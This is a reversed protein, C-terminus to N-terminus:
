GSPKDESGGGRQDSDVAEILRFGRSIAAYATAGLMVVGIVVMAVRPSAVEIIVGFMATALPAAIMEFAGVTAIVRGRYHDETREQVVVSFIPGIPGAAVGTLCAAVLLAAFHDFVFPMALVCLSAAFSAAVYTARRPLREGVVAYGLAGVIAGVGFVSVLTGLATARGVAQFEATFVLMFPALAFGFWLGVISLDRLTRDAWVLSVGEVTAAWFSTQLENPDVDPPAPDVTVVFVVAAAFLVVATVWFSASLGAAALVVGALAPGIVNGIADMTEGLANTRALAVGSRQSIVPRLAERAARGPGDFLAGVAVLLCLVAIHLTGVLMALPIAAVAVASLLDAGASLTRRDWRDIVAAGFAMSVIGAVLAFANVLGAYAANGTEQLVLWPVLIFVM